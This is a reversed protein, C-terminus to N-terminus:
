PQVGLAQWFERARQVGVLLALELESSAGPYIMTGNEDRPKASAVEYVILCRTSPAAPDPAIAFVAGAPLADRHTRWIGVSVRAKGGVIVPAGSTGIQVGALYVPRGSKMGEASSFEVEVTRGGIQECAMTALLLCLGFAVRVQSYGRIWGRNMIAM